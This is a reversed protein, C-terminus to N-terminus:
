NKKLYWQIMGIADYEHESCNLDGFQKKVRHETAVKPTQGKWGKPTPTLKVLSNIGAALFGVICALNFLHGQKMSIEGRTSNEWQPFEAILVDVSIAFEKRYFNLIQDCVDMIIGSSKPHFIKTRIIESETDYLAFGVNNISPDIALIKMSQFSQLDPV